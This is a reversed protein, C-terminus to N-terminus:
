YRCDAQLQLDRLYASSASSYRGAPVPRRCLVRLISALMPQTSAFIVYSIISIAFYGIYTKRLRLLRSIFRLVLLPRQGPAVSTSM